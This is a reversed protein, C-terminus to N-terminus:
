ENETLIRLAYFHENKKSVIHNLKGQAVSYGKRAYIYPCRLTERDQERVFDQQKERRMRWDGSGTYVTIDFACNLSAIEVWPAQDHHM